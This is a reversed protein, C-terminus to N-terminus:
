EQTLIRYHRNPVLKGMGFRQAHALAGATYEQAAASADPVEHGHAMLAGIAASLTSGAGTFPGQLRPWSLTEIEGEIDFLTNSLSKKDGHGHPATCNVLVFECGTATLEGADSAMRDDDANPERWTEAVRDLETHSLVLVTAQPILVQRVAELMDEGPVGGEPLASVFPDLVLPIHPYDSLVEAICSVQAISALAGVKFAAVPMDELLVRAQDILWDCEMPHVEEIRATDAVLMATPVCLGHCGFSSFVSVDAQTGIAGVPDFMNFTLILPRTRKQM